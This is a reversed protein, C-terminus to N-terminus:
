KVVRDLNNYVLEATKKKKRVYHYVELANKEAYLCCHKRKPAGRQCDGGKQGNLM